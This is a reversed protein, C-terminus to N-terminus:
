VSLRRLLEARAADVPQAPLAQRRDQTYYERPAPKTALARNAYYENSKM